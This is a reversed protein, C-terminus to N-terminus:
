CVRRYSMSYVHMLAAPLVVVVVIGGDDIAFVILLGEVDEGFFCSGEVCLGASVDIGVSVGMRVSLAYM